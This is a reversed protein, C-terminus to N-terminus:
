KSKPGVTGEVEIVITHLSFLGGRADSWLVRFRGRDDGVIGYYDSRASGNALSKCAPAHTLRTERLFTDGGDLSALFYIHSCDGGPRPRTEPWVLGLVGRGNVTAAMLRPTTLTDRHVSFIPRADTWTAGSDSSHAVLIERTARQVCVYYLRDRFPSSSTDAVLWSFWMGSSGSSLTECADGVFMPDSFHDDGPRLRVVWAHHRQLRRGDATRNEVFSALLSGDSLIAATQAGRMLNNPRIYLPLDFTKGGDRSRSIAISARRFEPGDFQTSMVYLWNRRAANGDAIATPHDTVVGLGTPQEDWTQGGDPSHYVVPGASFQYPLKPDRGFAVFVAQGDPTIAVWPDFCGLLPLDHRTWEVGGDLSLFTTCRINGAPADWAMAAGLLHRSDTPHIALTPEVLPRDPLGIEVATESGVRIAQATARGGLTLLVSGSAITAVVWQRQIARMRVVRHSGKFVYAGPLMEENHRLRSV